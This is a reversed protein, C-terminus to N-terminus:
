MFIWTKKPKKANQMFTFISYNIYRGGSKRFIKPFEYTKGLFKM